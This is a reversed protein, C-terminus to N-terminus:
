RDIYIYIFIFSHRDIERYISIHRDIERMKCVCVYIYMLTHTHTDIGEREIHIYISDRHRQTKQSVALSLEPPGARRVQFVRIPPRARFHIAFWKQCKYDRKHKNVKSINNCTHTCTCTYTYM